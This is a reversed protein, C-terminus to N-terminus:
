SLDIILSQPGKDTFSRDRVQATSDFRTIAQLPASQEQLLAQHEAVLAARSKENAQVESLVPGAWFVQM